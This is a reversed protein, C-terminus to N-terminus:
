YFEVNKIKNKNENIFYVQINTYKYIKYKYKNYKIKQKQNM